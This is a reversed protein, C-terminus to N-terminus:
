AFIAMKRTKAYMSEVCDGIFSVPEHHNFFFFFLQGRKKKKKGMSNKYNSENRGSPNKTGWQVRMYTLSRPGHKLVPRARAGSSGVSKKEKKEQKADSLDDTDGKRDLSGRNCNFVLGIMIHDRHVFFSSNGCM